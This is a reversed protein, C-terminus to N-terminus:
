RTLPSRAPSALYAQDNRHRGPHGQRLRRPVRHRYLQHPEHPHAPLRRAVLSSRSAAPWSSRQRSRVPNPRHPPLTPPPRSRPPASVASSRPASASCGAAGGREYAAPGTRCPPPPLAMSCRCSCRPICCNPASSTPPTAFIHIRVGSAAGDVRICTCRMATAIGVLLHAQVTAWPNGITILRDAPKDTEPRAAALLARDIGYRAMLEAAKATLAEAEAATTGHAEAKALLKRIRDLPVNDSPMDAGEPVSFWAASALPPIQGAGPRAPNSTAAAHPTVTPSRSPPWRCPPRPRPLGADLASRLLLALSYGPDDALARDLALSALAGAGAQWATFALLSAPAAIYGACAARTLDTWLRAHAARHGPDMRAWADDRVEIATLALTIRALRVRDTVKGGDRYTSIASQVIELGRDRVADPGSAALDGAVAQAAQATAQRMADADPGDAAAIAAALAARSAAAPLGAAALAAAAPDSSTGVPVGDIPCCAPDTCAYSWYRGEDVRLVDHLRVGAGPLIQRILDAVPTVMTGPGYGIVIAATLQHRRLLTATQRAIVTARSRDPPCPLDFRFALRIRQSPGALGIIVLSNDPHFGLLHPVVAIM